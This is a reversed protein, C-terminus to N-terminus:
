RGAMVSSRATSSAVAWAANTRSPETDGRSSTSAAIARTSATFGNSLATIWRRSSRARASASAAGSPGNRPTGTTTLSRSPERAPSGKCRPFRSSRSRPWTPVTSEYRNALSRAAPNTMTPLALVGSNPRSGVVSGSAWPAACLGQSRSREGPPELPPLAAATADPMTGTAWAPSPPPEIRIGALAQPSTPRLGLRPRTESPGSSPSAHAPMTTRPATVRLVRSAAATRSAMEPGIGPSGYEADRGARCNAASTPASGPRRRMPRRAAAGPPSQSTSGAHRAAAAPM